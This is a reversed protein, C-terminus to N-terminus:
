LLIQRLQRLFTEQVEVGLRWFSLSAWRLSGDSNPCVSHSLAMSLCLCVVCLPFSRSVLLVPAIPYKTYELDYCHSNFQSFFM